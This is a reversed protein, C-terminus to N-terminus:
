KRRREKKKTLVVALVALAVVVLDAGFILAITMPNNQLVQQIEVPATVTEEVPLGEGHWMVDFDYNQVGAVISNRDFKYSYDVEIDQVCKEWGRPFDPSLYRQGDKSTVNIVKGDAAFVLTNYPVEELCFVLKLKNKEISRIADPHTINRVENISLCGLRGPTYMQWIAKSGDGVLTLTGNWQLADGTVNYENLAYGVNWGADVYRIACYPGRNKQFKNLEVPESFELLIEKDNIQVARNLTLYDDAAKTAM